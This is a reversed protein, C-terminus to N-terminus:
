GGAELDAFPNGGFKELPSYDQLEDGGAYVDRIMPHSLHQFLEGHPAEAM